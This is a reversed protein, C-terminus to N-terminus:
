CVEEREARNPKNRPYLITSPGILFMIALPGDFYGLLDHFSESVM